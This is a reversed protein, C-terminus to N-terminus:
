GTITKQVAAAFAKEAKPQMAQAVNRALYLGPQSPVIWKGTQSDMMIRFTMYASSKSGGPTSTDMRVMGAYRKAESKSLGAEKLAAATLRDGWAYKRSTVMAAQKNKPNSLYPTQNASPHMGTKPSLHTVEGSPRQGAALVRSPTMAKALGYVAEPMPKAHAGSGPTNHRMPIVLFRKGGETRRVKLSTDLMKKLDRAPRGTEIEAANKYDTSVMASFDGTMEWTISSAYADKEGSWLKAKYVAERWDAATQKAVAKVAQSLLPLVQANVGATLDMQAGASFTIAYRLNM